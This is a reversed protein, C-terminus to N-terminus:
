LSESIAVWAIVSAILAGLIIEFITFSITIRAEVTLFILKNITITIFIPKSICYRSPVVM